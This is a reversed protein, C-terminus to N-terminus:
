YGLRQVMNTFELSTLCTFGAISPNAVGNDGASCHIM